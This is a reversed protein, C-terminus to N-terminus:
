KYIIYNWDKEYERIIKMDKLEKLYRDRINDYNTLWTLEKLEDIKIKFAWWLSLNALLILSSYFKNNNKIKVM